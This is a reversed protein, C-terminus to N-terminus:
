KVGENFLKTILGGSVYDPLIKELDDRTVNELCAVRKAFPKMTINGEMREAIVKGSVKVGEVKHRENQEKIIKKWMSERQRHRILSARVYNKFEDYDISLSKLLPLDSLEVEMDRDVYIQTLAEYTKRTAKAMNTDGLYNFQLVESRQPYENFYGCLFPGMVLGDEIESGECYSAGRNSLRDIM